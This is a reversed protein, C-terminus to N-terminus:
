ESEASIILPNVHVAIFRSHPMNQQGGHGDFIAALSAKIGGGGVYLMMSSTLSSPITLFFNASESSASHCNVCLSSSQMSGNVVREDRPSFIAHMKM